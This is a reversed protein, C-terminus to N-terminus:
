EVYELKLTWAYQCPVKSYPITPIEIVINNGNQKWKLTKDYGLLTIKTKSSTRIDKLIVQNEPFKPLIAYVANNKATFFAEKVAFGPDPDVTQLPPSVIRTLTRDTQFYRIAKTKM